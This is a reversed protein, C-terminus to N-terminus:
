PSVAKRPIYGSLDFRVDLNGMTTLAIGADYVPQQYLNMESLFLLPTANELEYIVRAFDELDCRLRVQITVREYPEDTPARQNQSSVVSCRQQNRAKDQIVQKLKSNLGAAALDFSDEALFYTNSTAFQEIAALRQDLRERQALKARAQQQVELLASVEDNIAARERFYGAFLMFYILTGAVFLLCVALVQGKGQPPLLNM